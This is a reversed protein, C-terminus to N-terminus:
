ARPVKIRSETEIFKGISALYRTYSSDHYKGLSIESIISNGLTMWTAAYVWTKKRKKKKINTAIKNLIKGFQFGGM